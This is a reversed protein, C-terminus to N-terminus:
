NALTVIAAEAPRALAALRGIRTTPKSPWLTVGSDPQLNGNKESEGLRECRRQGGTRRTPPPPTLKSRARWLLKSAARRHGCSSHSARSISIRASFNAGGRGNYIM